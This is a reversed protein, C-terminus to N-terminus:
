INIDENMYSFLITPHCWQSLSCSDSYAGPFPSPCSLRTHQLGQPRLSDSVVSRSFLLLLEENIGHFYGWNQGLDERLFHLISSILSLVIEISLSTHKLEFSFANTGTVILFCNLTVWLVQTWLLPLTSPSHSWELFCSPFSYNGFFGQLFTLSKLPLVSVPSPCALLHPTPAHRPSAALCAHSPSMEAAERPFPMDQLHFM